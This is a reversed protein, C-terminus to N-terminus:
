GVHNRVTQNCGWEETEYTGRNERDGTFQYEFSSAQFM